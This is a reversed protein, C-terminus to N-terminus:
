IVPIGTDQLFKFTHDYFRPPRTVDDSSGPPVFIAMGQRARTLLVRYTNLVFQQHDAQRVSKWQAGHFNHHSWGSESYRLDADWTVCAWDVELGQVQFETAADELFDSSRIDDSPGLFWHVPDVNYRVDIAHPRLRMARSSALLGIRESGRAKSRLWAKASSLDRTLVLPYRSSLSRLDRRASHLDRNLVAGVFGSLTEARFSRMSTALHLGDQMRLRGQEFLNALAQRAGAEAEQLQPPAYATWPVDAQALADLWGTIGAEGRNIEQGDGVLCIVAAWDTHRAMCSLLFAPESHSFGPINKRRKMFNATERANWARQAEDFIAVHDNPARDQDKLGEDRFHHVNQIFAKVKEAVEGKRPRSSTGRLRAMEDRTLAERLVAVLPGNGSLFVAHTGHPDSHQTAVNLGVLTKGAGPVGTVFIVSKRGGTKAEDILRDITASTEALNKASADSRAIATVSHQAYLAKAAEVITPTPRYPATLWEKANIEADRLAAPQRRILARLGAANCRAPPFVGDPSAPGFAADSTSARTAILIPFIPLHHSASHFNKLDLAYDWVQNFDASLFRDQGVKFELVVIADPLLVVADIRSGLRPVVFELCLHGAVGALADRLIALSDKWADEQTKDAGFQSLVGLIADDAANLFEGIPADYYASLGSFPRM